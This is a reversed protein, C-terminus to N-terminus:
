VSARSSPMAVCELIREQFLGMSLPAQRAAMWPAALLVVVHSGSHTMHGHSFVLQSTVSSNKVLIQFSNATNTHFAIM